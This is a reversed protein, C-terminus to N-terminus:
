VNATLATLCIGYESYKLQLSFCDPQFHVSNFRSISDHCLSIERPLLMFHAKFPTRKYVLRDFVIMAAKVLCDILSDVCLNCGHYYLVPSRQLKSNFPICVCVCM